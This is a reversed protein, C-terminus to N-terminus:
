YIPRNLNVIKQLEKAIDAAENLTLEVKGKNGTWLTIKPENFPAEIHLYPKNYVVGRTHLPTQENQTAMKKLMERTKKQERLKHVGLVAPM